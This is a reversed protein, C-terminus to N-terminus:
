CYAHEVGIREEVHLLSAYREFLCAHEEHEGEYALDDVLDSEFREAVAKVVEYLLTEAAFEVFTGTASQAFLVIVL